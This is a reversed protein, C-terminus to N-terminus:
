PLRRLTSYGPGNFRTSASFVRRSLSADARLRVDDDLEYSLADRAQSKPMLAGIGPFQATLSDIEKLADKILMKVSYDVGKFGESGYTVAFRHGIGFERDISPGFAGGVRVGSEAAQRALKRAAEEQLTKIALSAAIQM